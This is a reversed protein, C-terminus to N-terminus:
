FLQFAKVPVWGKFSLFNQHHNKLRQSSENGVTEAGTSHLQESCADPPHSLDHILFSSGGPHAGPSEFEVAGHQGQLTPPGIGARQCISLEQALSGCSTLNVHALQILLCIGEGLLPGKRTGKRGFCRLLWCPFAM